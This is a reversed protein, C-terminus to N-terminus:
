AGTRKRIRLVLLNLMRAILNGAISSLTITALFEGAEQRELGSSPIIPSNDILGVVVQTVVVALVAIGAGVALTLALTRRHLWHLLFGLLMPIVVALARLYAFDLNFKIVILYHALSLLVIGASVYGLLMAISFVPEGPLSGNRAASAPGVMSGAAQVTPPSSPAGDALIEDVAAMLRTMHFNFDRGSDVQLANLLSFQRLSEPLESAKPMAATELLIPIIRISRTLAIRLEVRVPDADEFIRASGNEAQGCWHPGVAVLLVKSQRLVGEIHAQFDVGYPITEIDMFVENAGYREVLRDFIRGVIAQSGARRYSIAIKPM